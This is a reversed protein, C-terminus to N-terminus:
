DDGSRICLPQSVQGSHDLNDDRRGGGGVDVPNWM